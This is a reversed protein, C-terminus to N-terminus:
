GQCPYCESTGLFTFVFDHRRLLRESRRYGTSWEERVLVQAVRHQSVNLDPATFIDSQVAWALLNLVQSRTSSRGPVTYIMGVRLRKFPCAQGNSGWWLHWASQEDTGRVHIRWAPRAQLCTQLLCAGNGPMVYATYQPSPQPMPVGGSSPDVEHVQDHHVADSRHCLM